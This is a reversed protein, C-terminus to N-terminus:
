TWGMTFLHDWRYVGFLPWILVTPPFLILLHQVHKSKTNYPLQSAKCLELISGRPAGVNEVGPSVMGLSKGFDLMKSGITGLIRSGLVDLDPDLDRCQSYRWNIPGWGYPQLCYRVIYFPRLRLSPDQTPGQRHFCADM